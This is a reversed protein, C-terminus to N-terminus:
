PEHDTMLGKPGRGVLNQLNRVRDLWGLNLFDAVPRHSTPVSPISFMNSDLAQVRSSMMMMVMMM